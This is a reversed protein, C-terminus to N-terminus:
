TRLTGQRRVGFVSQMSQAVQGGSSINQAVQGIIVNILERGNGDNSRRVNASEGSNNIVNVTTGGAGNPLVRSGRPLDVLEPGREGVVALGGPAFSTGSAFAPFTQSIGAGVAQGLPQTIATRLAVRQIDKLLGDLVDGFKEGDIAADEFASSFAFGMDLAGRSLNENEKQLEKNAGTADAFTKQVRRIMEEQEPGAVTHRKILELQENYQKAAAQLPFLSDELAAFKKTEEAFQKAGETANHFNQQLQEMYASKQPAGLDSAELLAVEANFKNAAAQLPNLRNLLADIESELQEKQILNETDLKVQEADLKVEIEAAVKRNSLAVLADDLAFIEDSIRIIENRLEDRTGFLKSIPSALRARLGELKTNLDGIRDQALDIASSGGM